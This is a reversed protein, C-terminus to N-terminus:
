GKKSKSKVAGAKERQAALKARFKAIGAILKAPVPEALPFRITGKDVQCPALEDRFEALVRETAGYISYHQKWTAFYLV